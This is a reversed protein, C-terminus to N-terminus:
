LCLLYNHKVAVVYITYEKITKVHMPLLIEILHCFSCVKKKAKKYVKRTVFYFYFIHRFKVTTSLSFRINGQIIWQPIILLKSELFVFIIEYKWTIYPAICVGNLKANQSNSVVANSKVVLCSLNRPVRPILNDGHLKRWSKPVFNETRYERTGEGGIDRVYCHRAMEKQLDIDSTM